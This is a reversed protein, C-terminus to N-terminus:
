QLATQVRLAPPSPFPKMLSCTVHGSLLLSLSLPSFSLVLLCVAWSPSPKVITLMYKVGEREEHCLHRRGRDGGVAKLGGGQVQTASGPWSSATHQKVKSTAALPPPPTPLSACVCACVFLCVASDKQLASRCLCQMSSKGWPLCCVCPSGASRHMAAKSLPLCACRRQCGYDRRSPSWIVNTQLLRSLLVVASSRPMKLVPRSSSKSKKGVGGGRRKESKEKNKSTAKKEGGGRQCGWDARERRDEKEGGLCRRVSFLRFAVYFCLLM